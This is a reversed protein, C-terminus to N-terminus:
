SFLLSHRLVTVCHLLPCAVYRGSTGSNREACSANRQLLSGLPCVRVVRSVAVVCCGQVLSV